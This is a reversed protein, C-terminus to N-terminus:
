LLIHISLHFIFDAKGVNGHLLQLFEVCELSPDNQPPYFLVKFTRIIGSRLPFAQRFVKGAVPSVAYAVKPNDTFYVVVYAFDNDNLDSM